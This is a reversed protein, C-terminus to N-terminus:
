EQEIRLGIHAPDDTEQQQSGGTDPEVMAGQGAAQPVALSQQRFTEASQLVLEFGRRL